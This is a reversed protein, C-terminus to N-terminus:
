RVPLAVDCVEDTPSASMFDAFYIERPSGAVTLGHAAAWATVGDYASLIQPFEVQAKRLRVFAERHAPERRMAGGTTVRDAQAPDIPVCAEAPGDSDENIEGYYVVFPSGAVGGYRRASRMLRGLAAGIWGPLEEVAVHRRETLVSQESVHRESVDDLAPIAPRGDHGLLKATVYATLERQSAVRREVGEWYAALIDAGVPGPASVVEAVQALPMNLRRLMVVLRATLLQSERYRRYGTDPDVDAPTLVGRRDYLRLAKISLRSRRSFVGISLLANTPEDTVLRARGDIAAERRFHPRGRSDVWSM